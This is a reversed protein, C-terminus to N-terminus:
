GGAHSQKHRRLVDQVNQVARKAKADADSSNPFSTVGQLMQADGEAIQKLVSVEGILEGQDNFDFAHAGGLMIVRVTRNPMLLMFDIIESLADMVKLRASLRLEPDDDDIASRVSSVRTLHEAPSVKGRAAVLAEDLKLVEEECQQVHSRSERWKNKLDPDDEDGLADLYRNARAKLTALDRRKAGLAQEIKGVHEPQSFFSDDLALHLLSDLVADRIRQYRILAKNSCGNVRKHNGCVLYSQDSRVEWIRKGDRNLKMAGKRAKNRYIAISGCEGCKVLGSFLNVIEGKRGSNNPRPRNVRAFLAHDIIQPYYGSIPEGVPRRQADGRAKMHPQYEGLVAISSRIKAIYSHQWKLARKDGKKYRGEPDDKSYEAWTPVGEDNLMAAIRERGIGADSWQFIRRVIAVRNLKWDTPHEILEFDNTTRNLRLWEPCRASKKITEGRALQARKIRWSEGVRESKFKSESYARYSNFVISVIGLQNRELEAKSIELDDNVTIITLGATVVRNIWSMVDMPPLRSLRDLQEVVLVSGYPLLGQELEITLKGLNGSPSLNSGTYASRGEDKVVRPKQWGRRECYSECIELQRLLTSGKSQELSSYRAYIIPLM